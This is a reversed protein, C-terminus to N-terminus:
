TKRTRGVSLVALADKPIRKVCPEALAMANDTDVQRLVAACIPQGNEACIDVRMGPAAGHRRGLGFYLEIGDPTTKTLFVEARGQNALLREIRRGLLFFFGLMLGLAPLCVLAVTGPVIDFHRRMVSLFSRRLAAYDPYVITQFAAMPPTRHPAFVRLDYTGPNADPAASIAGVWMNGGLWFGPQFREIILQVSAHSTEARLLSLNKFDHDVQGEVLESAGPLLHVTFLPARLRAVCSDLVAAFFLILM